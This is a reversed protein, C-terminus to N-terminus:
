KLAEIAEQIQDAHNRVDVSDLIQRLTGEPDILFTKRRSFPRGQMATDYKRSLSGDPDSLLPFTLEQAKAFAAQSAVDDQSVGYVHINAENWPTGADRLSCMEM